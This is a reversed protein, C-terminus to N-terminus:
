LGPLVPRHRDPRLPLGRPRHAQDPEEGHDHHRLVDRWPRRRLHLLPRRGQGLPAPDHRRPRRLFSYSLLRRPLFA